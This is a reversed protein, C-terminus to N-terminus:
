ENSHNEVMVKKEGEGMLSGHGLVRDAEAAGEVVEV